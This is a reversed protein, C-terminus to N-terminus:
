SVEITTKTPYDGYYSLPQIVDVHLEKLREMCELVGEIDGRDALGSGVITELSFVLLFREKKYLEVITYQGTWSPVVRFFWGEPLKPAVLKDM